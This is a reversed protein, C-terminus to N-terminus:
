LFKVKEYYLKKYEQREKEEREEESHERRQRKIYNIEWEKQEKRQAQLKEKQVKQKWKNKYFYLFGRDNIRQPYDYFPNNQCYEKIDEKIEDLHKLCILDIEKEDVLEM